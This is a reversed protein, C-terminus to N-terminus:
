EVIFGSSTSNMLAQSTKNYKVWIIYGVFLAGAGLVVVWTSNMNRLIPLSWSSPYGVSDQALGDKNAKTAVLFNQFDRQQLSAADRDREDASPPIKELTTLNHQKNYEDNKIVHYDSVAKTHRRTWSGAYKERAVREQFNWDSQSTPTQLNPPRQMSHRQNSRFSGRPPAIPKSTYTSGINVTNDPEVPPKTEVNDTTVRVSKSSFLSM